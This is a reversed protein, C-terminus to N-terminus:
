KICLLKHRKIRQRWIARGGGRKRRVPLWQNTRQLQSVNRKHKMQKNKNKLNCMYTCSLIYYKRKEAQSIEHLIISKLDMWTITLPMIDNKKISSYYGMTYKYRTKKIWENTSTSKPQKWIKAITLLAGISTSTFTDKCILMITEQSIYRPTSNRPGITVRNNTKQPVEMSNEMHTYWNVIRSVTHSPERKNVAEFSNTIQTRKSSLWKSLHSTIDLQPKLNCKESSHHQAYKWIGKPWRYIKKPFIDIKTKENKIPNNSKQIVQEYIQSILGENTMDHVFIKKWETPQTKM